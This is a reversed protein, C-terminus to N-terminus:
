ELAGIVAGMQDGRTSWVRIARDSGATILTGDPGFRVAYVPGDHGIFQATEQGTELNWLRATGDLSATALSTGDESLDLAYVTGSHGVMLRLEQGSALDWVKITRDGSGTIAHKGDPTFVAGYIGRGHAKGVRLMQGTELDWLKMEGDISGTLAHSGDPSVAVGSAPWGHAPLVHRATREVLDWVIARGSEHASVAVTGNQDIALDRAAGHDSASFVHLPAADALRRLVVEGDDGATLATNGDPLFIAARAMDKHRGVDRILSRTELDWLKISFDISATMVSRGDPSVDLFDIGDTHGVQSPQAQPEIQLPPAVTTPAAVAPAPEVAQPEPESLAAIEAAADPTPPDAQTAQREAVPPAEEVAVEAAAVAGGAEEEDEDVADRAVVVAETAPVPRGPSLALDAAIVAIAAIAAGLTTPQIRTTRVVKLTGSRGFRPAELRPRASGSALVRRVAVLCAIAAGALVFARVSGPLPSESIVRGAVTWRVVSVFLWGLASLAIAVLAVVLM